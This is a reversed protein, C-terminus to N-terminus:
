AGTPHSNLYDQVPGPDARSYLKGPILVTFPQIPKSKLADIAMQMAITGMKIGDQGVTAQLVDDPALVDQAIASTIDMGFVKASRKLNAVAATCGVTMALGDTIFLDLDSHATLIGECTTKVEDSTLAVQNGVVQANVGAAALAADIAKHRVGCVQQSDCTVFAVTASGNLKSKIYDSAEQGITTGLQSNDSTVFGKVYQPMQSPEICTDFCVIPIGAAKIRKFNVLAINPDNAGYIILDVQKTILDSVYANERQSNLNFYLQQFKICNRSGLSAAGKGIDSQFQNALGHLMAVTYTKDCGASGGTTKNSSSCAGAVLVVVVVSISVRLRNVKLLGM